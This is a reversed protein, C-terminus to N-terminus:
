LDIMCGEIVYVGRGGLKLVNGTDKALTGRLFVRSLNMCFCASGYSDSFTKRMQALASRAAISQLPLNLLRLNPSCGYIVVCASISVFYAWQDGSTVGRKQCPGSASDPEIYALPFLGNFILVLCGSNICGLQKLRMHGFIYRECIDTNM